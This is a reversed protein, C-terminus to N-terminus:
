NDYYQKVNQGRAKIACHHGGHSGNTISSFAVPVCESPPPPISFAPIPINSNNDVVQKIGM